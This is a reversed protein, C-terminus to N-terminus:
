DKDPEGTCGSNVVALFFGMQIFVRKSLFFLSQIEVTLMLEM